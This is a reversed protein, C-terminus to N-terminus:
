GSRGKRNQLSVLLEVLRDIELNVIANRIGIDVAASTESSITREFEGFQTISKQIGIKEKRTLITTEARVKILRRRISTYRTPLLEPVNKRHLDKLEELDRTLEDLDTILTRKELEMQVATVSSQIKEAITKTRLIQWIAFLFGVIGVLDGVHWASFWPLHDSM